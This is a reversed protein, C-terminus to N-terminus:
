FWATSSSLTHALYVSDYIRIFGTKIHQEMEDSSLQVPSNTILLEEKNGNTKSEKEGSSPAPCKTNKKWIPWTYIDDGLDRLSTKGDMFATVHAEEIITFAMELSEGNLITLPLSSNKM